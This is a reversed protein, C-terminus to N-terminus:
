KIKQSVFKVIAILLTSVLLVPLVAAWSINSIGARVRDATNGSTGQYGEVISAALSPVIVLGAYFMSAKFLEFFNTKKRRAM